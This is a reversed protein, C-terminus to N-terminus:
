KKKFENSKKFESNEELALKQILKKLQLNLSFIQQSLLYIMIFLFVVAFTLAILVTNQASLAAFISQTAGPIIFTIFSISWITIWMYFSTKSIKSRKFDIITKAILFGSIIIGLIQLEKISEFIEQEVM